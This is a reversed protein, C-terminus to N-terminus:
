LKVYNFEMVLLDDIIIPIKGTSAKDHPNFIIDYIVDHANFDDQDLLQLRWASDSIPILQSFHLMQPVEEVNDVQNTNYVITTDYVLSLTLYLDPSSGNDWYYPPVNIITVSEIATNSLDEVPPVLDDENTETDCSPLFLSSSLILVFLALYKLPM